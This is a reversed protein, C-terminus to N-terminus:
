RIDLISNFGTIELVEMVEESVHHLVMSGGKSAATKHGMLLSRLGASSIYAVSKFDLVVHTMKQFALLIRSQLEPSTVTDVRGEISLIIQQEKIEETIKM